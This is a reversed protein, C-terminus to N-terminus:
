TGSRTLEVTQKATFLESGLRVRLRLEWLGLRSTPLVGTYVGPRAEKLRLEFREQARVNAFAEVNVDAETLPREASDLLTLVLLRNPEVRSSVKWGLEANVTQQEQYQDWKLAQNYYDKEVAFSADSTAIYLFGAQSAVVCGLVVWPGYAWVRGAKQSMTM